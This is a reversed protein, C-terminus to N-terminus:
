CLGLSRKSGGKSPSYLCNMLLVGEKSEGLKNGEVPASGM